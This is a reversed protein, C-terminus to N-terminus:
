RKRKDPFPSLTTYGEGVKDTIKEIRKATKKNLPLVQHLYLEGYPTLALLSEVAVISHANNHDSTKIHLSYDDHGEFMMKRWYSEFSPFKKNNLLETMLRSFYPKSRVRLTRRRFYRVN